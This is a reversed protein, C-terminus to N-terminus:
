GFRARNEVVRVRNQTNSIDGETVYVRTAGQEQPNFQSNQGLGFFSTPTFTPTETNSPGSPLSVSPAGGGGSPKSDFTTSAIKAINLASTAAAFALSAIGAPNPVPGIAVPSLSLSSTIAKFGDMVALGLQLAKNFLFQKKAVKQEEVSGKELNKKKNDFILNAFGSIIDASKHAIENAKSAFDATTDLDEKLQARRKEAQTRMDADEIQSVVNIGLTKIATKTGDDLKITEVSTNSLKNVYNYYEEELKKRKQINEAKLITIGNETIGLKQANKIQFDEIVKLSNLEAEFRITSGSELIISKALESEKLLSLETQIRRKEEDERSKANAKYKNYSDQAAKAEDEAIKKKEKGLKIDSVAIESDLKIGQAKLEQVKSVEEAIKKEIEIRQKASTSSLTLEYKLQDIYNATIKQRETTQELQEKLLQKRAASIEDITKGEAEMLAIEAELAANTVVSANNVAELSSAYSNMAATMDDVSNKGIGFADFLSQIPGLAFQLTGTVLKMIKDFDGFMAVLGAVVTLLLGIPNAAIAMGIGKLGTIVKGFDLNKVGEGLLGFSNRLREIPSGDLTKVKDRIDGVKETLNAMKATTQTIAEQIERQKEAGLDSNEALNQLEVLSNKLQGVKQASNATDIATKIQIQIEEAM